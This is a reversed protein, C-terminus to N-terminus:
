RWRSSSIGDGSNRRLSADIKVGRGDRGESGCWGKTPQIELNYIDIASSLQPLPISPKIEYGVQLTNSLTKNIEPFMSTSSAANSPKGHGAGAQGFATGRTFLAACLLALSFIHRKM